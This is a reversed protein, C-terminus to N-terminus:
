AMLYAINKGIKDLSHATACGFIAVQGWRAGWRNCADDGAAIALPPPAAKPGKPPGDSGDRERRDLSLEGVNERIPALRLEDGVFHDLSALPVGCETELPRFEVGVPRSAPFHPSRKM